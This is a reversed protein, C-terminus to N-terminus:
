DFFIPQTWATRGDARICEFRVYTGQLRDTITLDEPISFQVATSEIEHQVVGYDTLARIRHAEECVITVTGSDVRLEDITPGTSVYSRGTRLSELIARPTPDDVQVVTWATGVWRDTHSDDAGTAWVTRGQGLLRDWVDTSDARGAAMEGEGNYIEVCAYGNLSSLRDFSCHVEETSWNPHAMVAFGTDSGIDDIVEQRDPSPEVVNSAGLHVIHPGDKTVENGELLVMSTGDRYQDLDVRADHDTIALFDYDAREYNAIMEDVPHVGDSVTTHTHVNGRLWQGTEEYPSRLSM